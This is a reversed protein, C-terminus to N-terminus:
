GFMKKLTKGKRGSRKKGGTVRGALKSKPIGGEEEESSSDSDSSSSDSSSSDSGSEESQPEKEGQSRVNEGAKGRQALLRGRIDSM